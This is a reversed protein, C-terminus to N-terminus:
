AMAVMEKFGIPPMGPSAVASCIRATASRASRWEAEVLHADAV